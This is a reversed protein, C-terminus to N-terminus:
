AILYYAPPLPKLRTEIRGFYSWAEITDPDISSPPKRVNRFSCDMVAQQFNPETTKTWFRGNNIEEAAGSYGLPMGRFWDNVAERFDQTRERAVLRLTMERAFCNACTEELCDDTAFTRNYLFSVKETYIPQVFVSELRTAFYEVAFHYFEHQFLLERAIRVQQIPPTPNRKFYDRLEWRARQVGMPTLFIGWQYKYFHFPHYFALLEIASSDGPWDDHELPGGPHKLHGEYPLVLPKKEPKLDLPTKAIAQEISESSLDSNEDSFSQATAPRLPVVKFSDSDLDHTQYFASFHVCKRM